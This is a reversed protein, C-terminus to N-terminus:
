NLTGAGPLSGPTVGLVGAAERCLRTFALLEHPRFRLVMGDFVVLLCMQQPDFWVSREVSVHAICGAHQPASLAAEALGHILQFGARSVAFAFPGFDFQVRDDGLHLIHWGHTNKALVRYPALQFSM